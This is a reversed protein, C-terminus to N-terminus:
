GAVLRRRRRQDAATALVEGADATQHACCALATELGSQFAAGRFLEQHM